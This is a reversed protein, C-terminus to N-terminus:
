EVPIVNGKTDLYKWTGTLHTGPYINAYWGLNTQTKKTYGTIDKSVNQTKVADGTKKGNEGVKYYNITYSGDDNAVAEVAIKYSGDTKTFGTLKTYATTKSCSNSTGKLIEVEKAAPPTATTTAKNGNKDSINDVTTFNNDKFAINTYKSIYTELCNDNPCYRVGILICNMDNCSDNNWETNEEGAIWYGMVGDWKGATTSNPTITMVCTSGYHKTSLQNVARYYWATNATHGKSADYKSPDIHDVDASAANNIKVYANDFDVAKGKIAGEGDQNLACGMMGISAIAVAVAMLKKGLKMIKLLVGQKTKLERTLLVIKLELLLM